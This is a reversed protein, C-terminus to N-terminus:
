PSSGGAVLFMLVVAASGALMGVGLPRAVRVFAVVIGLVVYVAFAAGVAGSGELGLSEAAVALGLLALPGGVVGLAVLTATLWLPRVAAVPRAGNSEM